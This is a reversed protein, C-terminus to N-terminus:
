KVSKKRTKATKQTEANVKQAEANDKQTEANVIKGGAKEIKAQASKSVPLAVSLERDLEGEGLIKVGFAKAELNIIGNKILAEVDVVSGAPLLNLYKLNVIVPKSRKPKFRGRGRLLPLRKLLSKKIKTGEFSLGIGGRSKQGKQGRSSTHGGKGSGFGRGLRKKTRKKLKSLKSLDIM